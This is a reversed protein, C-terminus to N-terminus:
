NMGGLAWGLLRARLGGRRRIEIFRLAEPCGSAAVAAELLGRASGRSIDGAHRVLSDLVSLFEDNTNALRSVDDLLTPHAVHIAAIKALDGRKILEIISSADVGSVILLQALELLAASSVVSRITSRVNRSNDKDAVLAQAVAYVTNKADEQEPVEVVYQGFGDKKRQARYKRKTEAMESVKKKLRAVRVYANTKQLGLEAVKEKFQSEDCTDLGSGQDFTDPGREFTAKVGANVTMQVVLGFVLRGLRAAAVGITDRLWLTATSQRGLPM